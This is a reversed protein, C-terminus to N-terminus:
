SHSGNLFLRCPGDFQIVAGKDVLAFGQASDLTGFPGETHTADKGAAAGAKLDVSASATNMTIGGDRYLTVAGSLDLQGLHQLYVGKESQSYTWSGNESVVDGKPQVLNVRDPGAQQAQDATVTYPRNRSDMGHYRVGLLRGAQLDASFGGHKITIRATDVMDQIEPWMAVSGLLLLAFVPLLRKTWLVARRRAALRRRTPPRRLATTTTALRQPRPRELPAVTM